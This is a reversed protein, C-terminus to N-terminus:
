RVDYEDLRLTCSISTSGTGPPGAFPAETVTVTNVGTKEFTTDYYFSSGYYVLGFGGSKRVAVFGISYDGEETLTDLLKVSLFYYDETELSGLTEYKEKDDLMKLTEEVTPPPTVLAETKEFLLETETIYYIGHNEENDEINDEVYMFGIETKEKGDDFWLPKLVNTESKFGDSLTEEVTRFPDNMRDYSATIVNDNLTLKAHHTMKDISYIMKDQSIFDLSITRNEADWNATCRHKSYGFAENPHGDFAGLDEIAVATKGGINYGRVEYGNVFVRIDSEYINGLISGVTGRAVEPPSLYESSGIHVRLTRSADDYSQVHVAFDDTLDELVIATRGGINYSPASHGDLRALIDTSYIQGAIDGNAAYAGCSAIHVAALVASMAFSIRLLASFAKNKSFVCTKKKM